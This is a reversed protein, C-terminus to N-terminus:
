RLVVSRVCKDLVSRKGVFVCVSLEFLFAKSSEASIGDPQIEELFLLGRPSRAGAFVDARSTALMIGDSCLKHSDM